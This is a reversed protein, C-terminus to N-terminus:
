HQLLGQILLLAITWSSFTRSFERLQQGGEDPSIVITVGQAAILIRYIFNGAVYKQVLAVTDKGMLTM